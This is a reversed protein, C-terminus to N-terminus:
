KNLAKVFEKMMENLGVNGCATILNDDVVCLSAKDFNAGALEAMIRTYPLGTVKRGSISKTSALIYLGYCISVVIKKSDLFYKTIEAARPNIQIHLPSHGGPIYLADYSKYDVTDFDATVIYKHGETTNFYSLNGAEFISSTLYQDPKKYPTIIDVTHGLVELMRYPFDIQSDEVGDGVLILIKKM